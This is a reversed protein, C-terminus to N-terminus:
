GKLIKAIMVLKRNEKRTNHSNEVDKEFQRRARDEKKQKIEVGPNQQDGKETVM